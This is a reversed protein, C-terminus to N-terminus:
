NRGALTGGWAELEEGADGADAVWILIIAFSVLGLTTGPVSSCYPIKQIVNLPPRM